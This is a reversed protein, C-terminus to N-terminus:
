MVPLDRCLILRGRGPLPCRRSPVGLSVGGPGCYSADSPILFPWPGALVQSRSRGLGPHSPGAWGVPAPAPPGASGLASSGCLSPSPLCSSSPSRITTSALCSHLVLVMMLTSCAEPCGKTADSVPLFCCPATNFM